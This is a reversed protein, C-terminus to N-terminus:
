TLHRLPVNKVYPRLRTSLKQAVMIGLYVHAFRKNKCYRKPYKLILRNGNIRIAKQINIILALDLPRLVPKVVSIRFFFNMSAHHNCLKNRVESAILELGQKQRQKEAQLLTWMEPDDQALSDQGTWQSM